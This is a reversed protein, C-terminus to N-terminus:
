QNAPTPLNLYEQRLDRLSKGKGNSWARWGNVTRRHTGGAHHIFALAAYSPSSYAQDL